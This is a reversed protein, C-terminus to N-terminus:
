QEGTLKALSDRAFGINPDLSLAKRYMEIAEETRGLDRLNSGLNAWDIGSKPDIEVAHRFCTVAEDHRKLKYYCFGLLNHNAIDDPDVEVARELFEIAEDFRQLEKHCAGVYFLVRGLDDESPDLSLAETFHDLATQRKGEAFDCVGHYFSVPAKKEGDELSRDLYPRAEAYEEINIHCLAMDFCLDAVPVHASGTQLAEEFRDLAEIYDRWEFQVKGRYYAILGADQTYKDALELVAEAQEFERADRLCLSEHILAAARDQDSGSLEYAHHALVASDKYLGKAALGLALKFYVERGEKERKNVSLNDRM